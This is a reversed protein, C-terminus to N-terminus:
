DLDLRAPAATLHLEGPYLIRKEGPFPKSFNTNAYWIAHDLLNPDAIDPKQDPGPPFYRAVEKQWAKQLKNSAAANLTDLPIQNPIFRYPTQDPRDTFADSMPAALQDHQNMPPLGLLEEITRVMNIQTYYTHNVQGRQIYPSVIYALSRHGDVHDVGAQPDDEVFFLATNSWYPSHSVADVLRGVALDNDAVQSAPTPDGVSGGSTHDTCLTMVILNPLNKNTVYQQFDALFIDLRYQDPIGTNFIPFAPNIHQAVSPVDAVAHFTGVPVHLSGTKKGELILSDNYWDTWTGFPQGTPGVFSPAYEGYMRVTLGHALADTWLFGTPAYVLSDGGNYPYSRNFDTFQKEIYDPAIAQDTWQHGDASLVGSDYFNDFLVYQDALAHHNPSVQAGFQVLSPDGNGLPVDGLVQDYTRNEKIVYIVHKIPHHEGFVLPRNTEVSERRNWGNNAAVQVHYTAFGSANPLPVISVSGVFSHTNKGSPNGTNPVVSGVATGKTNAVILREPLSSRTGSQEATQAAAVAVYSPYWATPLFGEFVLDRDESWRYLAIANNAGLSVALEDRSTLALGNPSSGLPAGPFTQIRLTETVENRSPDIVSISDSNSNAVFVLGHAALIATPQLGVAINKMVANTQLDIVSVTGTTSFASEPDAVIPTGASLDTYEGPNAPRGGQNTVYAHDGMVVISKPANEVPITGAYQNSALDIVCVSNRMNLVVYLTKGDASLALGGNNVAGSATPLLITTNVSLTGDPAVNAVVVRGNDQSFYLQTGDKSYLVGDYAGNTKGPNFQQKVTGTTLDVIVIPWTPLSYGGGTVLVAATKQDPRVAVAVPRGNFNVQTGAPTVVQNTPTVFSGDAQPGVQYTPHEQATASLLILLATSLYFATTRLRM